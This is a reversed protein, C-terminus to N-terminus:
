NITNTTSPPSGGGITPELLGEKELNDCLTDMVGETLSCAPHLGYCDRYVSMAVVLIAQAVFPMAPPELGKEQCRKVLLNYAELGIEKIADNYEKATLQRKQEFSM